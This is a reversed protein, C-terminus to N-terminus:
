VHQERPKQQQQTLQLPGVTQLRLYTGQQSMKDKEQRAQAPVRRDGIDFRVRGLWLRVRRWVLLKQQEGYLAGTVVRCM